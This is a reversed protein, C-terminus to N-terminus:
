RMLKTAAQNPPSLSLSLPSSLLSFFFFFAAIM